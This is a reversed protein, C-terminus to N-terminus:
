VARPQSGRQAVVRALGRLWGCSCFGFEISKKEDRRFRHQKEEIPPECKHQKKLFINQISLNTNKLTHLKSVAANTKSVVAVAVAAAM